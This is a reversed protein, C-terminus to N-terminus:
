GEADKLAIGLEVLREMLTPVNAEDVVLATPGLRAQVLARTGPWQQLGDAVEETDVHLVLLRQIQAPASESGSVLLRAAPPMPLGTRREFWDSLSSLTLGQAKGRQITAPTLRCPRQNSTGVRPLMESFRQMESELLLDSRALDIKLTVGDPEVEVCRDPPLTYDRTGTLRFHKFDIRDENPVVALRDTLRVAPLGRALADTLDEPTAFEFLAASPYVSIRDRKASWTRLSDAVATPVAKMGHRELLQLISDFSDGAELARYVSAPELLLTCAAGIGKWTALRSLKVILEPTLGQRYALIELNPQALLTQPFGAVPAPKDGLGLLWRGTNSLRVLWEGAASKTAIVLQMPYAAGLLFPAVGVAAASGQWFPHQIALWDELAAPTTWHQDPLQGLLLLTLLYASAYPAGPTPQVSWGNAPTWSELDLLAHWLSALLPHLGRRWHDGFPQPHLEADKEVLLGSALALAAAFPGPDPLTTLADSPPSGLLGSRLRDSDRKFFDHQQTRRLPAGQLEQWLVALRLIWDLGDSAYTPPSGEVVLAGPCPPLNLDDRQVRQLVTPPATVTPPTAASALWADFGKLKGRNNVTAAANWQPLLLGSELLTLVPALGDASGLAVLMEVLGGIPWDPKGSHRVLALVQRCEPTFEKLRRDLMVPNGLAMVIRELLEELPWQNRPRCLKQAVVRLLGEDYRQLTLRVDDM